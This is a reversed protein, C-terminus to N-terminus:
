RIRDALAAKVAPSAQLAGLVTVSAVRGLSERHIVERGAVFADVAAVDGVITAARRMPDTPRQDHRPRTREITTM